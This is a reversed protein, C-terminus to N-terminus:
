NLWGEVVITSPECLIRGGNGAPPATNVNYDYDMLLTVTAGAALTMSYVFDKTGTTYEFQGGGANIQNVACRRDHDSPSNQRVGNVWCNGRMAINFQENLKFRYLMEGFKFTILLTMTRTTSPNTFAFNTPAIGNTNVLPFPQVTTSAATTFTTITPAATSAGPVWNTGNWILTQGIVPPTTSTDVDTLQDISISGTGQMLPQWLSGTSWVYEVGTNPAIAQTGVIVSVSGRNIIKVVRGFTTNTPNPITLTRGVTIQNISITSFNDVTAAATGIAANAPFNGLALERLVEAGSIDLAAALTNANAFATQVGIGLNGNHVIGDTLDTTGDPLTSATIGSRFFDGQAGSSLPSWITGNWVYEMFTGPNLTVGAVTTSFLSPNNVRLIRGTTLNSPNPITYNIGSAGIILQINSSLDVTTAATGIPGSVGPPTISLFRNTLTGDFDLTATPDVNLGVNGNRRINETTDTTGDPLTTGGAGSRWFDFQQANVQPMWSTGNWVWDTVQNQVIPIGNVTVGTNASNMFVKLIRGATTNTPSPITYSQNNTGTFSLESTGDVTAAATGLAGGGVPAVVSVVRDVIAGSIDLAAALTTANAFPTTVGIGINGNHVIGDTTDTVGDPLTSATAGSRFFDNNAASPINLWTTGSWVFQAVNGAGITTGGVIVSTTGTNGISLIRGAQANTPNPITLTRGVTTQPILVTSFNDVTAVATGIAGNAAFNGLTTARLVEAGNIDLTAALANANTINLGVSGQRVIGETFDNTGDPFTTGLIGSGWFTGTAIAVWGSTTSNGSVKYYLVGNVVDNAFDGVSGTVITNPNTDVIFTQYNGINNDLTLIPTTIPAASNVDLISTPAVNLGVKGDRRIDQTLDNVGDPPNGSLDSFYSQQTTPALYQSQTSSM